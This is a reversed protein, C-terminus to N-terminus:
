YYSSVSETPSTTLLRAPGYLALLAAKFAPWSRLGPRVETPPSPCQEPEHRLPCSTSGDMRRRVAPVMTLRWSGRRPYMPRVDPDQM